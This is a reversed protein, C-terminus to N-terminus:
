PESFAPQLEMQIRNDGEATADIKGAVIDYRIFDGM